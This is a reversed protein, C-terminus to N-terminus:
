SILECLNVSATLHDILDHHVDLSQSTKTQICNFMQIIIKKWLNNVSLQGARQDSSQTFPLPVLDKDNSTRNGDLSIEPFKESNEQVGRGVHIYPKLRNFFSSSSIEM